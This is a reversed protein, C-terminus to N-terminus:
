KFYTSIFISTGGSEWFKLTDSGKIVDHWYNTTSKKITDTKITEIFEQYKIQEWVEKRIVQKIYGVDSCFGRISDRLLSFEMQYRNDKSLVQVQYHEHNFCGLSTSLIKIKEGNSLSFLEQKTLQTKKALDKAKNGAKADNYNCANTALVFALFINVTIIKM